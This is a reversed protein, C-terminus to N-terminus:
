ASANGEVFNKLAKGIFHEWGQVFNKKAFRTDEKAFQDLGQHTLKVRTKNNGEDFLEITVLTTINPVIDYAWTYALKKMPEVATIRCLHLFKVQDDGAVFSFEFGVEPKFEAIDFYWQRMQDKDTLAKWVTAIPANYTRETIVDQNTTATSM